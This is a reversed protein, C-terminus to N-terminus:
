QIIELLTNQLMVKFKDWRMPNGELFLQNSVQLELAIYQDSPWESRLTDLLTKTREPYFAVNARASLEPAAAKIKNLWNIGISSEWVKGEGFLLSVHLDPKTQPDFTHVSIHIVSANRELETTIRQRLTQLLPVLQRDHLKERQTETLKMALHSWRDPNGQQLYCDILLRTMECHVLPTRFKMALGQALNLSGIDWGEASTVLETDNRLAEKYAEPVTCTAHECSFILPTM